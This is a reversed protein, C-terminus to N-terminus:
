VTSRATTSFGSMALEEVRHVVPDHQEILAASPSGLRERRDLV